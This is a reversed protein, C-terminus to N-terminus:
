EFCNYSTEPVLLTNRPRGIGNRLFGQSHIRNRERTHPQGRVSRRERLGSSRVGEKPFHGTSPTQVGGYRCSPLHPCGQPPPPPFNTILDMNRATIGSSFFRGYEMPCSEVREGGNMEICMCNCGELGSAISGCFDANNNCSFRDGVQPAPYLASIRNANRFLRVALGKERPNLHIRFPNGSEGVENFMSGMEHLCAMLPESIRRDHMSPLVALIKRHRCSRLDTDYM